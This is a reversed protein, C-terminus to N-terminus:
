RAVSLVWGALAHWTAPRGIPIQIQYMFILFTSAWLTNRHIKRTSWLNYAALILLFIYSFLAAMVPNRHVIAFPWRAIAAITLGSTAM